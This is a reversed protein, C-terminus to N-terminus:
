GMQALWGMIRDAQSDIQVKEHAFVLDYDARTGHEMDTFSVVTPAVIDTM